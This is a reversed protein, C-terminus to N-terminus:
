LTKALQQNKQLTLMIGQLSLEPIICSFLKEDSFLQAFGGTGVIIIDNNSNFAEHKIQTIIQRIAGLHGYYLGSQINSVTTQGIAREPKEISVPSLKATHTHLAQMSIKIGPLIAGGLYEAQTNIVDLTTATGLDVSIINKNPFAETAAITRAIRDSGVDHPNKCKIKLGTKTGPQLVFPEKGFYKIFAARISYNLTPVVSCYAIDTIKKPDLQNAELVQRFFLGLQDSTLKEESPHRFQCLLKNDAFVGGLIHSNGVDLCLIM